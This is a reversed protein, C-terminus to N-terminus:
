NKKLRAELAAIKNQAPAKFFNRSSNDAAITRYEALAGAVHRSM